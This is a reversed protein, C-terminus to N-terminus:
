LANKFIFTRWPDFARRRCSYIIGVYLPTSLKKEKKKKNNGFILNTPLFVQLILKKGFDMEDAYRM